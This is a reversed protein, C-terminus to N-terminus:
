NATPLVFDATVTATGTVTVSQTMLPERPAWATAKYTGAPVNPITFKGDAGFKGFYTSPIVILYGLMEPHINCLLAVPGPKDFNRGATEGKQLFGTDWEKMDPSFFHHVLADKNGFTVTGGTTVVSIFPEFEKHFIDIKANMAVGPEKPADELYVVGAAPPLKTRTLTVTGTIGPGEYPKAPATADDQAGTPSTPPPTCATAALTLAFLTRLTQLRLIANM